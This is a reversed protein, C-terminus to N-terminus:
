MPVTAQSGANKNGPGSRDIQRDDIQTNIIKESNYKKFM